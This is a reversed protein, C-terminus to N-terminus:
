SISSPAARNSPVSSVGVVLTAPSRAAGACVNPSDTRALSSITGNDVVDQTLRLQRRRCDWADDPM